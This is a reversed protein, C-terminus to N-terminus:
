SSDCPTTARLATWWEFCYGDSILIVTTFFYNWEYIDGPSLAQSGAKLNRCNLSGCDSPKTFLAMQFGYM